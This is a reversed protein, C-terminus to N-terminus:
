KGDHRQRSAPGLGGLWLGEYETWAGGARVAGGAPYLVDELVSVEGVVALAELLLFRLRGAELHRDDRGGLPLRHVAACNAAYATTTM